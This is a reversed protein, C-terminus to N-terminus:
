LMDVFQNSLPQAIEVAHRNTVKGKNDRSWGLVIPEQKDMDQYEIVGFCGASDIRTTIAFAIDSYEARGFQAKFMCTCLPPPTSNILAQETRKYM